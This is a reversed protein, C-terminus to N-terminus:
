CREDFSNDVATSHQLTDSSEQFSWRQVLVLLGSDLQKERTICASTRIHWAAHLLGPCIAALHALSCVLGRLM